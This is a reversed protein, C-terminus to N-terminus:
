GPVPPQLLLAHVAVTTPEVLAAQEPPLGSPLRHLLRPPGGVAEAIGGPEHIGFLRREVCIHTKGARCPPCRGCWIVSEAAVKDGPQFDAVGRGVEAVVGGFEHGLIVPTRMWQAM